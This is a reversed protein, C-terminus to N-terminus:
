ELVQIEPYLPSTLDLRSGSVGRLKADLFSHVCYTTIVLQRRGDIGLRGSFHFLGRVMNSKLLAGDDTFTFHNAGRIALYMRDETPERDYISQIDARIQRSEADASEGSHDSLLFMFPRNVGAQIVSGHPAGDVDIGAKCRSDQSCFQAAQAGGFSHGFVGVRTMDLRGAFEGSSDSANLQTLRDVVFSMDATWANVLRDACRARERGTEELCREPNNEAVRKMVRGDSFAVVFTRYPADIGVVVYGHSALDEALTTYNVVELSAGARMLVVPYTEQRPSVNAERISHAHVKRLDRTLFQSLLIGRQHEMATRLTAPLYDEAKASEAADVPYWIWVLLERKTGPPPALTDLTSEDVWDCIARGVGFSGTPTPLTIATSHELWLALLLVAVSGFGLTALVALGKFIRGGLRRPGAPVDM